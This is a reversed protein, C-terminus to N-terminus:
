SKNEEKRRSRRKATEKLRRALTKEKYSKLVSPAGKVALHKAKDSLVAGQDLWHQLRDPKISLLKDQEEEFPNYWGICEVYKGDRRSRSDTVVLRYFPRNRRGQQRMRIVLSM